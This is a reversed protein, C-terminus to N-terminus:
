VVFFRGVLDEDNIDIDYTPSCDWDVFGQSPDEVDEHEIDDHVDRHKFEDDVFEDEQFEEDVFEEDRGCQERVLVPNHYPNEFNSESNYGDIDCKTDMNQAALRQTLEAVQMHLDEIMVDQVNRNHHLAEENPVQGRRGGRGRGGAMFVSSSSTEPFHQLESVLQRRVFYHNNQLSNLLCNVLFFVSFFLFLFLFLFFLFFEWFV